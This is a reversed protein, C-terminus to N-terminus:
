SQKLITQYLAVIKEAQSEWNFYKLVTERGNMGFQMSLDPNILLEKIAAAIAKSDEPNVAIGCQYKHVFDKVKPFDSVVVPLGALLAEFLRNSRMGHHNPHNSYLNISFSCEAMLGGVQDVPIGGLFKIKSWIYSKKLDELILPDNYRGGVIATYDLDGLLELAGAFERICRAPNIGGLFFIRRSAYRSKDIEFADTKFDIIPHNEASVVLANSNYCLFKKNLSDDTTIVGDFSKASIKELATMVLLFGKKLVQPIWPTDQIVAPYDEHVDMVVKKGFIKLILCWPILEPDHFHYIDAHIEVAKRVARYGTLFLREVKNQPKKITVMHVGDVIESVPETSTAVLFVEYGNKALSIAQKHFIRRDFIPHVTTIHAIRFM